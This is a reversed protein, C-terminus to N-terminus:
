AGRVQAEPVGVGNAGAKSTWFTLYILAAAVRHTFRPAAM